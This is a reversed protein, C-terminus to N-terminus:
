AKSWRWKCVLVTAALVFTIANAIAIPWSGLLWGYIFWLAVGLVFIVYMGLSIAAVDRTRVVQWVQPIFACTTCLAAIFGLTETYDIM